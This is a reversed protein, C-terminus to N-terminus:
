SGKSLVSCFAPKLTRQSSSAMLKTTQLNKGICAPKTTALSEWRGPITVLETHGASYSSNNLALSEQNMGLLLPLVGAAPARITFAGLARSGVEETGGLTNPGLM